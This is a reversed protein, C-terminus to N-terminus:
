DIGDDGCSVTTQLTSLTRTHEDVYQVHVGSAGLIDGSRQVCVETCYACSVRCTGTPAQVATGSSGGGMSMNQLSLMEAYM